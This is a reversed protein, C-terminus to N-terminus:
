ALEVLIKFANWEAINGYGSGMPLNHANVDCFSIFIWMNFVIALLYLLNAIKDKTIIRM